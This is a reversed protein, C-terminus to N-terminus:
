RIREGLWDLPDSPPLIRTKDPNVKLHISALARVADNYALEAADQNPCLVVWDDAFRVLGHSARLMALDFSHLYINALLPSLPSGQLIGVCAATRRQSLFYALVAAATAVGAAGGTALLSKQLVRRGAPTKLVTVASSGARALLPKLWSAGMLLGGTTVQRLARQRMMEAQQIEYFDEGNGGDEDADYIDSSWRGPYEYRDYGYPDNQGILSTILWNVGRQAGGSAKKLSTEFWGDSEEPPGAQIVGVELWKQILVIVRDDNVRRKLREVLLTHDLSDFCRAIDGDVAWRNGHQRLGRVQSVADNVSRGPRYGFSCPLFKPEWLPELIQFAARQAVRDRVSMVSIQREGGSRKPLSFQGPPQPQYAGKLLSHRLASLQVPLDREFDDMSVGDPGASRARRYRPINGRVQRWATLLNEPAALQELLYGSRKNM